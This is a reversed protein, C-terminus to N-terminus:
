KQKDHRFRPYNQKKEIQTDAQKSEKRLFNTKIGIHKYKYFLFSILM